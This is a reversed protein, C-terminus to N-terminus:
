NTICKSLPFIDKHIYCLGNETAKNECFECLPIHNTKARYVSSAVKYIQKATVADFPYATRQWMIEDFDSNTATQNFAQQIIKDVTM